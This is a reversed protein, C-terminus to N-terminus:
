PRRGGLPGAGLPGPMKPRNAVIWAKQADTHVAWIAEHLAKVAPRLGEAIPRGKVLIAFVDARTAGGQRATRAEDFIAKLAALATANEAAFAERLGKIAAKQADTLALEPPLMRGGSRGDVPHNRPQTGMTGELSSGQEGFMVLAYDEAPATNTATPLLDCATVGLTGVLLATALPRFM